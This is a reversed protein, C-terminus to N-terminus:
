RVVNGALLEEDPIIPGIQNKGPVDQATLVAVIGEMARAHETHIALIKGHMVPSGYVAAYLMEAPPPVDDVFQSEGRVHSVADIHKM